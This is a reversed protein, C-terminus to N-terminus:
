HLSQEDAEATDAPEAEECDALPVGVCREQPDLSEGVAGDAAPEEQHECDGTRYEPKEEEGREVELVDEAHARQRGAKGEDREGQSCSYARVRGAVDDMVM